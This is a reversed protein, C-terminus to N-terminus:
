FGRRCRGMDHGRVGALGALRGGLMWCVLSTCDVYGRGSGVGFGPVDDARVRRVSLATRRCGAFGMVAAGDVADVAAGLELSGWGSDRGAILMLGGCEAATADAHVLDLVGGLLM